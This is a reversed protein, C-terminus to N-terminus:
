LGGIRGPPWIRLDVRGVIRAGARARVRALRGLQSRQDGMVFVDGRPVRVPGFYVSDVLRHDVFPEARGRPRQRAARRGRHRGRRRRRAVVRKLMCSASGRGTSCSSIAARRPEGSGTPSSTSSCTTARQPPDAGHQGTPVAFPEAVFAGLLGLAWRRRRAGVTVVCRGGPGRAEDCCCAPSGHRGMTGLGALALASDGHAARARAPLLGLLASSSASSPPRAPSTSREPRRRAGPTRASRRATPGASSTCRRRDRPQRRDRDPALWPPTGGCCSSRSRRRARGRRRPLLAGYAWWEQFHPELVRDPPRAGGCLSLLAAVEATRRGLPRAVTTLARM